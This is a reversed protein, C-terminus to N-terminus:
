NCCLIYPDRKVARENKKARVPYIQYVHFRVFYLVDIGSVLMPVPSSRALDRMWCIRQSLDGNSEDLVANVASCLRGKAM